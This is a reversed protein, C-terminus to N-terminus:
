RSFPRKLVLCLFSYALLSDTCNILPCAAATTATTTALSRESASSERHGVINNVNSYETSDMDSQFYVTVEFEHSESRALSLELILVDCTRSETPIRHFGVRTSRSNGGLPEKRQTAFPVSGPRCALAERRGWRVAGDV